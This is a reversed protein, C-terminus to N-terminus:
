ALGEKMEKVIDRVYESDGEAIVPADGYATEPDLTLLQQKVSDDAELGKAFAQLDGLSVKKGRTLEQLTDYPRQLGARRLITQMMSSIIEPHARLAIRMQEADPESDGLGESLNRYGLISLGFANGFMRTALSNSLDRQLRSTALKERLFGFDNNSIQLAGEGREFSEPNVKQPMVSSIGGRKLLIWDDSIYRWMDQSLGILIKNADQINGFLEIARDYPLIQTPSTNPVLGFSAVFDEAFRIWNIDPYAAYHDSLNGVAGGLKGELKVGYIKYIWNAVRK